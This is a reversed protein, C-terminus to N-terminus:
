LRGNVSAGRVQLLAGFSQRTDITRREVRVVLQVVVQIAPQEVRGDFAEIKV